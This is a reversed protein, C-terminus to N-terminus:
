PHLVEEAPTVTATGAPHTGPRLLPHTATPRDPSSSVQTPASQTPTSEASTSQAPTSQASTSQAPASQGPAPLVPIQRQMGQQVHGPLTCRFTVRSLGALDVRLTTEQGPRMPPTGALVRGDAVVQLDHATTGANTVTLVVPGALLADASTTFDWEVLGVRMQAVPPGAPRPPAPSGGCGAVAVTCAAAILAVRSRPRRDRATPAASM